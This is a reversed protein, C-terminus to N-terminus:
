GQGHHADQKRQTRGVDLAAGLREDGLAVVAVVVGVGNGGLECVRQDLGHNDHTTHADHEAHQTKRADEPLAVDEHQGEKVGKDDAEKRRPQREAAM